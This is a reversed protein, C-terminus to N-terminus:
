VKRFKLGEVRYLAPRELPSDNPQHCVFYEAADYATFTMGHGGGHGTLLPQFNVSWPGTLGGESVALAEVYGDKDFSFWLSVLKGERRLLWPGDTVFDGPDRVSKVWPASGADWLEVPEGVPAKLDPTLEVACVTGNGIQLWEHCFVMYPVGNEVYLTGDLSEWDRPTIAGDSWPVFTGDPTDSVLIATGRCVNEAKFSAFMYFKGNWVHVEPAWYDRTGWFDLTKEFISKPESWTVLDNSIYVDFGRTQTPRQRTGYLYYKGGYPLIFPDRIRIDQLKM